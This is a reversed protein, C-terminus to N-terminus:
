RTRSEVRDICALGDQCLTTADLRGGGYGAQECRQLLEGCVTALDAPWQLEAFVEQMSRGLFHAPPLGARDALYQGITSAVECAAAGADLSRAAAIRARAHRAAHRRRLRRPDAGRRRLWGAGLWGAVYAVPPATTAALAQAISVSNASSLLRAPDDINGLLGDLRTPTTTPPGAGGIQPAVGRSELTETPLVDLAIPDSFATVYRGREPDFYAYEITPIRQVKDSVARVVQTFRKRNGKIEGALQEQPVRFNEQLERNADLKPPPATALPADSLIDITLDIPDGVRVTLPKANVRLTFQGVAGSFAAPRGEEPLPLVEIPQVKPTVRLKRSRRISLSLFDRELEVPYTMAIVLDDFALKGPREAVFDASLEYTYYLGGSANSRAQGVKVDETPFPGFVPLNAPEFCRRMSFEDVADGRFYAPRVYITLKLPATQGVFLRETPTSLEATLFQDADSPGVRLQVPTTKMTRGDVEVAIAPIDLVGQALPTLEFQYVRTIRRTTRGNVFSMYQSDSPIGSGRVSCNPLTPFEPPECSRFNTISVRAMLSEGVHAITSDLELKVEAAFSPASLITALFAPLLAARCRRLHTPRRPRDCSHRHKRTNM